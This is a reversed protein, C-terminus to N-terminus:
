TLKKVKLKHTSVFTSPTKLAAPSSINGPKVSKFHKVTFLSRRLHVSKCAFTLLFVARFCFHWYMSKLLNVNWICCFVKFSFMSFTFFFFLLYLTFTYRGLSHGYLFVFYLGWVHLLKKQHFRNGNNCRLLMNHVGISVLDVLPPLKYVSWKILDLPFNNQKYRSM